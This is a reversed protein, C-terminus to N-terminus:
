RPARVRKFADRLQQHLIVHPDALLRENKTDFRFADPRLSEAELYDDELWRLGEELSMRPLDRARLEDEFRRLLHPNRVMARM